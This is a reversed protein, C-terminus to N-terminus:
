STCYKKREIILNWLNSDLVIFKDHARPHYCHDCRCIDIISELDGFIFYSGSLDRTESKEETEYFLTTADGGDYTVSMMKEINITGYYHCAYDYIDFLCKDCLCEICKDGCFICINKRIRNWLDSDLEIFKDHACPYYHHDYQCINTISEL